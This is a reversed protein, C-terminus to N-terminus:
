RDTGFAHHVAPPRWTPDPAFALGTIPSGTPPALHAPAPITQAPATQASATQVAAPKMPALGLERPDVVGKTLASLPAHSAYPHRIVGRNRRGAGSIATVIVILALVLWLITLPQFIARVSVWFPKTSTWHVVDNGRVTVGNGRSTDIASPGSGAVTNGTVTTPSNEGIIALGHSSADSIRNDDIAATANRLYVAIDSRRISNDRVTAGTVGDFLAVAHKASDDITNGTVTVAKASRTLVIGMQNSDATNNAVKVKNGGVIEIGYRGNSSATSDSITNNGYSGTATGTANPGGALPGGNISVGNRGNGTATLQTMVVGTSARSISLGDMANNRTTTTSITSNTVFRHLAIGDVLNDSVTSNTMNIGDAGNIFVGFANDTMTVHDLRASVYSYDNGAGPDDTGVNPDKALPATSFLTSGRLQGLAAADTAGAAAATQTGTLALGGTLGSWFGLHDFKAWAFSVNGGVVRVYARGDSTDTDVAGAAADWSNIEVPAKSSGQFVLSGGQTVISVFSKSNSALHLVIGDPSALKLTAGSDVVINESLVFSGDPLKVLSEPELQQLDALTYPATRGVLVLTTSSGTVLRYPASTVIGQWRAASTIARVNYIRQDEAAVIAAEKQPDGPYPRGTVTGDTPSSAAPAASAALPAGAFVGLVVAGAAM